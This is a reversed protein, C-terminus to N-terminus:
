IIIITSTIVNINQALLLTVINIKMVDVDVTINYTLAYLILFKITNERM